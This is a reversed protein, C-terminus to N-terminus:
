TYLLTYFNKIRSLYKQEQREMHKADQVRNHNYGLLHLLGHICMWALAQEFIMGYQPAEKRIQQPCLVIEGLYGEVGSGEVGSLISEKGFPFSLVNAVTDKKRYKKNLEAARKEGVFAISVGIADKGEGKLVKQAVKRLFTKDISSRTRNNIEIM